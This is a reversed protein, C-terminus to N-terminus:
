EITDLIIINSPNKIVSDIVVVDKEDLIPSDIFEKEKRETKCSLFFLLLSLYFIKKM